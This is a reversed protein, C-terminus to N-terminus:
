RKFIRKVVKQSKSLLISRAVLSSSAVDLKPLQCEVMSNRGSVNSVRVGAINGSLCKEYSAATGGFTGGFPEDHIWDLLSTLRAPGLWGVITASLM